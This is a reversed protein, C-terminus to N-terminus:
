QDGTEDLAEKVHKPLYYNRELGTSLIGELRVLALNTMDCGTSQSRLSQRWMYLLRKARIAHDKTPAQVLLIMM